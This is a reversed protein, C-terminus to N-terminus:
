AMVLFQRYSAELAHNITAWPSTQTGSGNDSGTTSVYYTTM